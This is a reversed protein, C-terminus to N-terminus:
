EPKTGSASIVSGWRAREQQLFKAMEAPSHGAPTFAMAKLRAIVDPQRLANAIARSLRDAIPLPTKPPAVIGFWSTSVVVPYTEAITEIDPLEAFREDSAIGLAKLRGSKIHAFSNGLNDVMFDVHGALLDTVAPALGKYPVHIVRIQAALRFMEATLHPPTGIGPSAFKLTGPRAQALAVLDRANAAPFDPRSVLVLHGRTLGSVAVFETPDYPLTPYLHPAVVLSGPPTALLTYGDPAARAVYEAGLREGAGPRNEVVVPQKLSAALKVSLLRTVVDPAGGAAVPVVIKLTRSPYEDAASLNDSTAPFGVLVSFLSIVLHKRITM